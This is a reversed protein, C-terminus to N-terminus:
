TTIVDCDTRLLTTRLVLSHVISLSQLVSSVACKIGSLKDKTSVLKCTVSLAYYTVSLPKYSARLCETSRTYCKDDLVEFMNSRVYERARPARHETSLVHYLTSFPASLEEHETCRDLHETRSLHLMVSM